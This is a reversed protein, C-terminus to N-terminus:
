EKLWNIFSEQLRLLTSAKRKQGCLKYPVYDNYVLIDEDRSKRIWFNERQTMYSINVNDVEELVELTFGCGKQIKWDRQLLPSPHTWNDLSNIHDRWRGLMDVARGIYVSGIVDNKIRYIGSLKEHM